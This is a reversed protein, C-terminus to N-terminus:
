KNRLKGWNEMLAISWIRTWHIQGKIFKQHLERKVPNSSDKIKNVLPNSKMWEQFPFVFGQKPRDYIERPLIDEFAEILLSKPRKGGFKILPDIKYVAEVFDIDLFPVRLELSHWMSMMDSDKLLQNQMYLNTELWSTKNGTALGKLEDNLYCQSLSQLVEKDSLELCRAVLGPLFMGRYFLFDRLDDPLTLFGLKKLKENKLFVSLNFFDRPILRLGELYFMREFSPYGGLLEDAGVGSLVAKLGSKKAAKSIFYSNIGDISPQDFANFIDPLDSEFDSHAVTSYQNRNPLHKVVIEQFRKESYQEESFIVSLTKLNEKQNQAALLAILSSDIGGSLFVGIPADSILHRNVAERFKARILEVAEGRNRIHNSFNLCYFKKIEFGGGSMNLKLFHGKPLMFVGKLTTFPEPLSGFTLFLIKWDKNEEIDIGSYQFSKIESSFLFCKPANYYYLPKIGLPDRVLYFFNKKKDELGFAYMGKLKSFAEEGWEEYAKIIVETDSHSRFQYGKSKLQERLEIFNYVEGNFVISISQDDNFMPQHGASSLDLLSLRRHGFCFNQDSALHLGKDDPGGHSMSDRMRITIDKLNEPSLDKNFIGNIRCM